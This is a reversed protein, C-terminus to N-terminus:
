EYDALAHELAERFEKSMNLFKYGVAVSQGEQRQWVMRGKAEISESIGPVRLAVRLRKESLPQASQIGCGTSSVDRPNGEFALEGSENFLQVALDEHAVRLARRREGYARVADLETQLMLRRSRETDLAQQAEQWTRQLAELKEEAYSLSAQLRKVDDPMGQQAARAEGLYRTAEDREGRTEELTKITEQYRTELETFQQRLQELQGELHRTFVRSEGLYWESEEWHKRHQGAAREWSEAQSRWDQVDTGLQTLQQELSGGKAREEGLFWSAENRQRRLVGLQEASEHLLEQTERLKTNLEEAQRTYHESMAGATLLEMLQDKGLLTIRAEKACRQAPVTFSGSAVLFGQDAQVAQIARVFRDVATKEFFVRDGLYHLASKVGEKVLVHVPGDSLGEEEVTELVEYGQREFARRVLQDVMGAGAHARATADTPEGGRWARVWRSGWARWCGILGLLCGALVMWIRSRPEIPRNRASRGAALRRGQAASGSVGSSKQVASRSEQSSVFGARLPRQGGAQQLADQMARFRASFAPSTAGAFVLGNLGVEVVENAASAPRQIDIVIQGPEVRMHYDSLETLRIRMTQIWRSETPRSAAAYITQIGEIGGRQIMSREPLSGVVRRPPFDLIITPPNADFRSEVSLPEDTALRMVLETKSLAPSTVVEAALVRANLGMLWTAAVVNLAVHFGSHGALGPTRKCSASSM